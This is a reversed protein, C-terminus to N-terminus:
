LEDSPPYICYICPLIARLGMCIYYTSWVRWCNSNMTSGPRVRRKKRRLQYRPRRYVTRRLNKKMLNDLKRRTVISQFLAQRTSPHYFSGEWKSTTRTSLTSNRGIPLVRSSSSQAVSYKLISNLNYGSNVKLCVVLTMPVTPKSVDLALHELVKTVPEILHLHTSIDPTLFTM